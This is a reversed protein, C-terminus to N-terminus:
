SKVPECPSVMALAANDAIAQAFGELLADPLDHGM